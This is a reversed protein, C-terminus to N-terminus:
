APVKAAVSLSWDTAKIVSVDYWKREWRFCVKCRYERTTTSLDHVVSLRQTDNWICRSTKKFGEEGAKFTGAADFVYHIRYLNRPTM